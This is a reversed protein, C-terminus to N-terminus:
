VVLLPPGPFHIGNPDIKFKRVPAHGQETKEKIEKILEEKRAPNKAREIWADLKSGEASSLGYLKQKLRLGFAPVFSEEATLKSFGLADKLPQIEAESIIGQDKLFMIKSHAIELNQVILPTILYIDVPTRKKEKANAVEIKSEEKIAKVRSLLWDKDAQPLKAANIVEEDNINSVTILEIETPDVQAVNSRKIPPPNLKFLKPAKALEQPSVTKGMQIQPKSTIPIEPPKINDSPMTTAGLFLLAARTKFNNVSGM